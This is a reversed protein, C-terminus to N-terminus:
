STGSLEPGHICWGQVAKVGTLDAFAHRRSRLCFEPLEGQQLFGIRGVGRNQAQGSIALVGM